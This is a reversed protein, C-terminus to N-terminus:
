EGRVTVISEGGSAVVLSDVQTALLYIAHHTKQLERRLASNTKQQDTWVASITTEASQIRAAERADQVLAFTNLGALVLGLFFVFWKINDSM